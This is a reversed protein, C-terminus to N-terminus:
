AGAADLRERAEAGLEVDVAGILEDLQVLTSAAVIPVIPPTRGLLWALALQNPTAGIERAITHLAALRADADPGRYAAPLPRDARTFAGGLLPSYALLGVGESACLDLLEDDVALDAGANPSVTSGPRPRLYSHRQQVACYPAVGLAGAAARARELRWARTNSAAVHAAKGAAVVAGFAGVTEEIAVARDDWHAYLLDVHDTQLRRLSADVATSVASASLGELAAFGASPDTPAAGVKTAVVIEDRVGRERMWRGLLEESEGGDAGEVWFAYNNATDLFRGGAAFWRDLLAYSTPADIRTGFYMCGLAMVSTRLGTDGIDM